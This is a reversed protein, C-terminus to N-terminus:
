SSTTRAVAAGGGTPIVFPPKSAPLRLPQVAEPVVARVVEPGCVPRKAARRPEVAGVLPSEEILCLKPTGLPEVWSDKQYLTVQGSVTWNSQAVAVSVSVVVPVVVVGSALVHVLVPAQCCTVAGTVAP